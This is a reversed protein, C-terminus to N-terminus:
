RSMHSTLVNDLVWGSCIYLFCSEVLYIYLYIYYRESKDYLCLAIHAICESASFAASSFITRTFLPKFVLSPSLAVTISIHLYLYGGSCLCCFASRVTNFPREDAKEETRVLRSGERTPVEQSLHNSPQGVNQKM